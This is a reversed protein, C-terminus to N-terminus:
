LCHDSMRERLICRLKHTAIHTGGIFNQHTLGEFLPHMQTLTSLTLIHDNINTSDEIIYLKQLHYM